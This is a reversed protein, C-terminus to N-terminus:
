TILCAFSPTKVQVIVNVRQMVGVSHHKWEKTEYLNKHEHKFLSQIKLLFMEAIWKSM